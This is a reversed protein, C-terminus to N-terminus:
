SLCELVEKFDKVFIVKMRDDKLSKIANQIEETNNEESLLLIDANADYASQLKQVLGGIAGITGDTEITGTGAILRKNGDKITIDNETLQNYISLTQMMGASPGSSTTQNVNCQPTTSIINFKDYTWFICYDDQTIEVTYSVGDRIYTIEDNILYSYSKDKYLPIDFKSTIEVGNYHTIIDGIKLVNNEEVTLRVIAGLYEYEVKINSNDISAYTYANIISSEISQNKQIVGAQSWMSDTMHSFSDSIESKDFEDFFNAIFNQFITTNETAYVYLSLLNDSDYGDEIDFRYDVNSVGGPTTISYNTRVSCCVIIFIFPVLYVLMAIYYKKFIKDM